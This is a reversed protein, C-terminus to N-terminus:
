GNGSLIHVLATDLLEVENVNGAVGIHSDRICMKSMISDTLELPAKPEDRGVPCWDGLGIHMLGDADARTTLYQLYAMFAAASETIMETEGRYVYVYYPLYALISDWAPGNGWLFGWGGTPM